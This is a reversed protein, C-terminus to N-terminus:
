ELRVRDPFVRDGKVEISMKKSFMRFSQPFERDFTYRIRLSQSAALAGTRGLEVDLESRSCPRIVLKAERKILEGFGLDESAVELKGKDVYLSVKVQERREPETPITACHNDHVGVMRLAIGHHSSGSFNHLEVEIRPLGRNTELLAARRIVLWDPDSQKLLYISAMVGERIRENWHNTIESKWVVPRAAITFSRLGFAVKFESNPSPLEKAPICFRLQLIGDAVESATPSYTRGSGTLMLRPHLSEYIWAVRTQENKFDFTVPILVQDQYDHRGVCQAATPRPLCILLVISLVFFLVVTKM